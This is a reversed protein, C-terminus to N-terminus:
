WVKRNKPGAFKNMAAKRPKKSGCALCNVMEAANELTCQRCQWKEESEDPSDGRDNGGDTDDQDEIEAEEEDDDFKQAVNQEKKKKKKKKKEKNDTPKKRKLPSMKKSRSAEKERKNALDNAFASLAIDADSSDDDDSSDDSDSEPLPKIKRGSPQSGKKAALKPRANPVNKNRNPIKPVPKQNSTKAVPKKIPLVKADPKRAQKPTKKPKSIMKKHSNEASKEVSLPRRSSQDLGMPSKKKMPRDAARKKQPRLKDHPASPTSVTKSKLSRVGGDSSRKDHRKAFAFKPSGKPSSKPSALREKKKRGHDAKGEDRRRKKVRIDNPKRPVDHKASVNGGKINNSKRASDLPKRHLDGGKRPVDAKGLKKIPSTEKSPRQKGVHKGVAGKSQNKASDRNGHIEPIRPKSSIEKESVASPHHGSESTKVKKIQTKIKKQESVPGLKEQKSGFTNELKTNPTKGIPRESLKEGKVSARSKEAIKSKESPRTKESFRSKSSATKKTKSAFNKNNKEVIIGSSKKINTQPSVSKSKEGFKPKLQECVKVSKPKGVAKVKAKGSPTGSTKTQTGLSRNKDGSKNKMRSVDKSKSATEETRIEEEPLAEEVIARSQKLALKKTLKKATMPEENIDKKETAVEEITTSNEAKTALDGVKTNLSEQKTALSEKKADLNEEKTTLNEKTTMKEKNTVKNKNMNPVDKKTMDEKMSNEKTTRESDALVKRTSKVEKRDPIKASDSLNGPNESAIETTSNETVCTSEVLSKKPKQQGGKSLVVEDKLPQGTLALGRQSEEKMKDLKLSEESKLSHAIDGGSTNVKSSADPPKRSSAGAKPGSKQPAEVSDSSSKFEKTSAKKEPEDSGDNAIDKLDTVCAGTVNASTNVTEAEQKVSDGDVIKVRASSKAADVKSKGARASQDAGKPPNITQGLSLNTEAPQKKLNSDLSAKLIEKEPHQKVDEAEEGSPHETAVSTYKKEPNVIKSIGKDEGKINFSKSQEISKTEMTPSSKESGLNTKSKPKEKRPENVVKAADSGITSAQDKNGDDWVEPETAANSEERDKANSEEKDKHEKEGSLSPKELLNGEENPEKLVVTEQQIKLSENKEVGSRHELENKHESTAVEIKHSDSVKTNKVEETPTLDDSDTVIRESAQSNEKETEEEKIRAHALRGPPKRRGRAARNLHRNKLSDQDVPSM